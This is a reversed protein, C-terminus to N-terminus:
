PNARRVAPAVVNECRDSRDGVGALAAHTRDDVVDDKVAVVRILECPEPALDGTLWERRIVEGAVGLRGDSLRTPWSEEEASNRLGLDDLVPYVYAKPGISRRVGLDVAEQLNTGPEDIVPALCLVVAKGYEGVGLGVLEAYEASPRAVAGRGDLAPRSTLSGSYRFTPPDTGGRGVEKVLGSLPAHSDALARSQGENTSRQQV